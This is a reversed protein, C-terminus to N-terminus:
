RGRMSPGVVILLAFLKIVVGGTSLTAGVPFFQFETPLTPTIALVSVSCMGVFVVTAWAAGRVMALVVAFLLVKAFSLALAERWTTSVWLEVPLEILSWFFVLWVALSFWIRYRRGNWINSTLSSSNRPAEVSVEASAQDHLRVKM